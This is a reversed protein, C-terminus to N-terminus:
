FRALVVPPLITFRVSTRPLALQTEIARIRADVRTLEGGIVGMAIGGGIGVLAGLGFIGGGIMLGFVQGENRVGGRPDVAVMSLIAFAAGLVSVVAGAGLAAEAGGFSPRNTKLYQLEHLPSVFAPNAVGRVQEPPQLQKPEDGSASLVVAVIMGFM